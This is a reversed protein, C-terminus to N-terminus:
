GKPQKIMLRPDYKVIDIDGTIRSTRTMYADFKYICSMTTLDMVYMNYRVFQFLVGNDEQLCAKFQYKLSDVAKIAADKRKWIKCEAVNGVFVPAVRQKGTDDGSAVNRVRSGKFYGQQNTHADIIYLAFM